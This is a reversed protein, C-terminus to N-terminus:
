APSAALNQAYGQVTFEVYWEAQSDNMAFDSIYCAVGDTFDGAKRKAEMAIAVDAAAQELTSRDYPTEGPPQKSLSPMYRIKLKPNALSIDRQMASWGDWWVLIVDNTRRNVSDERGGRVDADTFVSALHEQVAERWDTIVNTM